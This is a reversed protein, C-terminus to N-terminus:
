KGALLHPKSPFILREGLGKTKLNRPTKQIKDHKNQHKKGPGPGPLEAQASCLRKETQRAPKEAQDIATTAASENGATTRDLLCSSEM